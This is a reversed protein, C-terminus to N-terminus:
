DPLEKIAINKFQVLAPPSTWGGKKANWDGHHQLAIPGSKAVGPLQANEIVMYDNLKVWLRDGKMTIEFTNWEGRPKDMKKKPTVGAKVAASSKKNTRYGYVEGSGVPWMWMNVQAADQGRLYVGSDVDEIEIKIEKGGADKKHTGDPLIMYVNKNMYGKEENKLRWDILLVFNKYSKESWLHKDKKAESKADYDIVGNVIKWHGNDGAPVKWNTFDKGNFLSTFGEPVQGAQSSAAYEACCTLLAVAILCCSLRKM